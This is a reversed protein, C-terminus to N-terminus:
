SRQPQCLLLLCYTAGQVALEVVEEADVRAYKGFVLHESSVKPIEAGACIPILVITAGKKVPLTAPKNFRIATM